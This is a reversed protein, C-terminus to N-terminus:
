RQRSFMGSSKCDGDGCAMEANNNKEYISMCAHFDKVPQIEVFFGHLATQTTSMMHSFLRILEFIM